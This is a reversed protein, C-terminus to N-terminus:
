MVNHKKYKSYIKRKREKKKWGKKINEITLLPVVM